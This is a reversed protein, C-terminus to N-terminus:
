LARSYRGIVLGIIDVIWLINGIFFFNLIIRIIAPIKNKAFLLRDLQIFSLFVVLLICVIDYSRKTYTKRQAM